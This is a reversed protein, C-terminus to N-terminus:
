ATRTYKITVNAAVSTGGAGHGNGGTGGAGGSIVIKLPTGAALTNAATFTCSDVDGAASGSNAITIVGGTIPTAGISFTLVADATTIADYIVSQASNLTVDFPLVLFAESPNVSLDEILITAVQPQLAFTSTWDGSAAGDSVYVKGATAAAVGKPEHIDPDEIAAHQIAM